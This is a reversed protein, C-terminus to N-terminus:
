LSESNVRQLSFLLLQKFEKQNTRFVDREHCPKLDEGGKSSFWMAQDSSLYMLTSKGPMDLNKERQKVGGACMSPKHPTTASFILRLFCSSSLSACSRSCLEPCPCHSCTDAWHMCFINSIWGLVAPLPLLSIFWFWDLKYLNERICKQKNTQTETSKNNNNNNIQTM